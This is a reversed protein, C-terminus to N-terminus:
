VFSLFFTILPRLVSLLILNDKSSVQFKLINEPIIDKIIDLGIPHLSM